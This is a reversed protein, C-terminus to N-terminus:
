NGEEESVWLLRIPSQLNNRKDSLALFPIEESVSCQRQSSFFGWKWPATNVQLFLRVKWLGYILPGQAEDAQLLTGGEGGAGAPWESHKSLFLGWMERYLLSEGCKGWGSRHVHECVCSDQLCLLTFIVIERGNRVNLFNWHLALSNVPWGWGEAVIPFSNHATSQLQDLIGLGWNFVTQEPLEEVLLKRFQLWKYM